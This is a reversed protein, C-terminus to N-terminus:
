RQKEALKGLTIVAQEIRESWMQGCSLRIFNRYGQKPSFLPGPTISIKRELADRYLQLSDVWKPFEVWLLFGGTPRTVKTGEPFYKTVADIMVRVQHAYSRRVRRLYYDYGGNRLFEAVALQPLVPSAITNTFKLREVKDRFRGPSTWGVRYGPCLTKSFSSCLLVLGRKDFAKAAKPRAGEHPLDGYIDDEILPIERRALLEVLKKKKEDPMCSGLPNLYNPTLLVAAVKHRRLAGELEDLCVGHRPYTALELAKMGLSGIAQLVGFFTPSEVAVTDGPKAVARLCLNLAEMCGCTTIIEESSLACGWDLSRRAIERRLEANGAAFEYQNGAAGARRAVSAMVRNLKETPFLEPGACGAGLPVIGPDLASRLFETVLDDISVRSAASAAATKAPEPPMERFRHRVYFGSQPRAEIVGRNELLMYAQLVTSVSVGQKESLGRVSPVRDGPRLTGQDIMVALRDAVQEYLRSGNTAAQTIM